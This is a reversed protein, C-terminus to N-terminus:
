FMAAIVAAIIAVAPIPGVRTSDAGSKNSSSATPSTTASTSSGASPTPTSASAIFAIPCNVIKGADTIPYNGANIDELSKLSNAGALSEPVAVLKEAWFPTGFKQFIGNGEAKGSPTSMHYVDETATGASIPGFDFYFVPQGMYWGTTPAPPTPMPNGPADDFATSKFPVVPCNVLTAADKVTVKGAAADAIVSKADKYFDMPTSDPVTVKQVAWLDSYGQECPIVNIINSGAKTGNAFFPVWIPATAIVASSGNLSSYAGFNWFYCPAGKCWAPITTFNMANAGNQNLFFDKSPCAADAALAITSFSAVLAIIPLM